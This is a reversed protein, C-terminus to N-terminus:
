PYRIEVSFAIQDRSADVLEPDLRVPRADIARLARLKASHLVRVHRQHHHGLLRFFERLPLRVHSLASGRRQSRLLRTPQLYKEARWARVAVVDHTDIGVRREARVERM